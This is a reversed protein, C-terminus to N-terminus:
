SCLFRCPWGPQFPATPLSRAPPTAVRPLSQLAGFLRLVLHIAYGPLTEYLQPVYVGKVTRALAVLTDYRSLQRAKCDELCRAIEM